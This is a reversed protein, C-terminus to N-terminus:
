LYNNTQVYQAGYFCSAWCVKTWQAEAWQGAISDTVM